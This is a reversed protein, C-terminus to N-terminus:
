LYLLEALFTTLIILLLILTNTRKRSDVFCIILFFGTISPLFLNISNIAGGVYVHSVHSLVIAAAFGFMMREARGTLMNPFRKMIVSAGLFLLSLVGAVMLFPLGIIGPVWETPRIYYITLYIFVLFSLM